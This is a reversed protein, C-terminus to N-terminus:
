TAVVVPLKQIQISVDSIIIPVCTNNYKHNCDSKPIRNSINKNKHGLNKSSNIYVHLNITEMIKLCM